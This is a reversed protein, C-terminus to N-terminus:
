SRFPLFAFTFLIPKCVYCPFAKLQNDLTYYRWSISNFNLIKRKQPPLFIPFGASFARSLSLFWCCVWGVYSPPDPFRVGIMINTPPSRARAVAGNRSGRRHFYRSVALVCETVPERVLAFTANSGFWHLLHYLSSGLSAFRSSRSGRFLSIGSEWFNRSM